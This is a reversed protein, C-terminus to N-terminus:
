TVFAHILKEAVDHNLCRRIDAINRLHSRATQCLGQVYTEINLAQNMIVGLNRSAYSATILSSGVTLSRVTVDARLWPARIILFETKDAM